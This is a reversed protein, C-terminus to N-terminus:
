PHTLPNKGACARELFQPLVEPPVLDNPDGYGLGPLAGASTLYCKRQPKSQHNPSDFGPNKDLTSLLGGFWWDLGGVLACGVIDCNVAQM